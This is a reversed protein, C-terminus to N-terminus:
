LRPGAQCRHRMKWLGADMGHVEDQLQLPGSVMRRGQAREWWSARSVM